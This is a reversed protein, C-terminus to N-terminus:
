PRITVNKVPKTLVYFRCMSFFISAPHRVVAKLSLPVHLDIVAHGYFESFLGEQIYPGGFAEQM